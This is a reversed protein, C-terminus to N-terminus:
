TCAVCGSGTYGPDYYGKACQFCKCHHQWAWACTSHWTGDPQSCDWSWHCSGVNHSFGSPCSSVMEGPSCSSQCATYKWNTSVYSSAGVSGPTGFLLLMVLSLSVWLRLPIFPMTRTAHLYKQSSPWALRLLHQQPLPDTFDLLTWPIRIELQTLEM